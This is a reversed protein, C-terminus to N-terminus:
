SRCAIVCETLAKAIADTRGTAIQSQIPLSLLRTALRETVPLSLGPRAFYPHQHVAHAYHVGTEIGYAALLRDRVKDREDLAVAFQYYVAGDCHPPLELRADNLQSRYQAALARRRANEEDLKPLLARLIAAQVEDLRGNVGPDVCMRAEDLGYNRLRKVREAIAPDNTV